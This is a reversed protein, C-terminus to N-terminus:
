WVTLDAVTSPRATCLRSDSRGVTLVTLTTSSRYSQLDVRPLINHCVCFELKAEKLKSVPILSRDGFSPDGTDGM